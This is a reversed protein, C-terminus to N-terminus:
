PLAHSLVRVVNGGMIKVIADEDFGEALLADTVEAVGTADFPAAIAGDFDSGLGVHDAGAVDAAHRIARAIARGDEGCTATDWFGIGVVGGSRAVARLQDDSLNRLNDCTARVGGHSVVVPRTAIAIADDFTQPSAHALDLLMGRAEMRRIMARGKDTLGGKVVGHASGGLDNDFFHTPAMMRYGADFLRDLNVLEGDLAHAGEIALFGATIRPDKARREFYRGLEDASRILTLQGESREAMARLRGAQYLARESLSTWTGAPWRQILALLTVTDLRDADNREYNLGLPTKTVVAFGELAVNGAVLRPVDVHGRSGRKLLDNGWLLADCHLDAVVLREHLARAAASVPQNARALTKNLHAQVLQPGVFLLAGAALFLLAALGKLWGRV